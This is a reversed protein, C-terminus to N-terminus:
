HRGGPETAPVLNLDTGLQGIQRALAYLALAAHRRSSGSSTVAAPHALTVLLARAQSRYATFAGNAGRPFATVADLSGLARSLGATFAPLQAVAAAPRYALADALRLAVPYAPVIAARYATAAIGPALPGRMPVPSPVRPAATGPSHGRQTGSPVPPGAVHAGGGSCAVAAAALCAVVLAAVWRRAARGPGGPGPSAARAHDSRM